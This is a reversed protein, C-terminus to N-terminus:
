ALNSTMTLRNFKIYHTTHHSHLCLSRCHTSHSLLRQQSVWVCMSLSHFPWTHTFVQMPQYGAGMAMAVFRAFILSRHILRHCNNTNLAYGLDTGQYHGLTLLNVVAVTCATRKVKSYVFTRTLQCSSPKAHDSLPFPTWNCHSVKSSYLLCDIHPWGGHM